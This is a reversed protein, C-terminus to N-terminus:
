PPANLPFSTHFLLLACKLRTLDTQLKEVTKRCSSPWTHSHKNSATLTLSFSLNVKHLCQQQHQAATQSLTLTFLQLLERDHAKEQPSRAHDGKMRRKMTLNVKSSQFILLHVSAIMM